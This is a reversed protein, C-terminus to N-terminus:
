EKEYISADPFLYRLVPEVSRRFSDPSSSLWPGRPFPDMRRLMKPDVWEEGGLDTMVGYLTRLHFHQASEKNALEIAELMEAKHVILPMHISYSLAGELMGLRDLLAATQKLGKAWPTRHAKMKEVHDVLLGRHYTGVTGIERMAYFDDNWLMFPDSVEPTKCAATIHGRSSRAPTNDQRRKHHTVTGTNLWTPAGGFVWVRAHDVNPLTRLSYRLEPNEGDRCVYVADM